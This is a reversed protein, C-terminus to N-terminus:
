EILRRPLGRAGHMVREISLRKGAAKYFVVHAEFPKPLVLSRIGSLQQARFQRMRGLEPFRSLIDMTKDFANLFKEAIEDSANDMYWRYQDILDKEARDSISVSVIM